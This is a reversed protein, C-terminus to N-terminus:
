KRCGRENYGKMSHAVGQLREFIRKCRVIGILLDDKTEEDVKYLYIFNPDENYVRISTVLAIYNLDSLEWNLDFEDFDDVPIIDGYKNIFYRSIISTYYSVVLFGENRRIGVYRGELTYAGEEYPLYVYDNEFKVGKTKLYKKWKTM